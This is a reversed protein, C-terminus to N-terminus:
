REGANALLEAQEDGHVKDHDSTVNRISQVIRSLPLPAKVLTADPEQNDTAPEQKKKKDTFTEM